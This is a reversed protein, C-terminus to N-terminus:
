RGYGKADVKVTGNRLDAKKKKLDAKKITFTYGKASQPSVSVSMKSKKYVGVTKDNVDKVVIKVNRLETLRQNATNNVCQTKVLLNGKADFYASYAAIGWKGSECDDITAKKDSFSNKAVTVTCELKAKGDELTAIIKTKGKKKATVKGNKDVVAISKDRSEWKKVKAGTVSLKKTFGATITAKSPISIKNIQEVDIIVQTTQAFQFMYYYDGAPISPYTDTIAYYTQGEYEIPEFLDATASAAKGYAEQNSDLLQVQVDVPSPVIIYVRFGSNATLTFSVARVDGATVSGGDLLVNETTTTSSAAQVPTTIGLVTTFMIAFALLFSGIKKKVNKM